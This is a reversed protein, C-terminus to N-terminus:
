SPESVPPGLYVRVSPAAEADIALSRSFHHVRTVRRPHNRVTVTEDVRPVAVCVCPTRTQQPDDEFIFECTVV